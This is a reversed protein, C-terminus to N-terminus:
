ECDQLQLKERITPNSQLTQLINKAHYKNFEICAAQSNFGFAIQKAHIKSRMIVILHHTLSAPLFCRLQNLSYCDILTNVFKPSAAKRNILQKSFDTSFIEQFTKM